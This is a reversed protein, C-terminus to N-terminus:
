CNHEAPSEWWWALGVVNPGTHAVMVPSFEAVLETAPTTHARVQELLCHAPEESLAHLAVVHAVAAEGPDSSRWADVIRELARPRSRSPRLPRARGDAFEFLPHLGLWRGAMAAAEPVRGGKALTELSQITAMLRVREAVFRARAEVEGITAGRAAAKAAELVVMGQAGAATGSDVVRVDGDFSRAALNAAEVTASMTGAITVIVAGDDGGPEELASLFEGPTPASTAVADDVAVLVEELGLDGDRVPTNGITLSLPVVAIGHEACTAKPLSAASDTVVIVSM